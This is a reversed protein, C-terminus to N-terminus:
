RAVLGSTAMAPPSSTRDEEGVTLAAYEGRDSRPRSDDLLVRVLREQVRPRVSAGVRELPVALQDLLGTAVCSAARAGRAGRPLTRWSAIPTPSGRACM